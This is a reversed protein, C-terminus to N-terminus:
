SNQYKIESVSIRWDETWLACRAVLAVFVVWVGTFFWVGWSWEGFDLIPTPGRSAVWVFALMVSSFVVFPLVYHLYQRMIIHLGEPGGSVAYRGFKDAVM